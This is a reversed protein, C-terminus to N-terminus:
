LCVDYGHFSYSPHMYEMAVITDVSTRHSLSHGCPAPRSLFHGDKGYDRVSVFHLSPAVLLGSGKRVDLGRSCNLLSSLRNSM